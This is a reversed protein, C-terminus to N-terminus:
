LVKQLQKINVTTVPSVYQMHISMVHDKLVSRKLNTDRVEKECVSCKELKNEHISKVHATLNKVSTFRKTCSDCSYM